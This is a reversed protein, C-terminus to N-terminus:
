QIKSPTCAFFRCAVINNTSKALAKSEMCLSFISCISSAYLKGLSVMAAPKKEMRKTTDMYHIWVAIDICGSSPFFSCKIKDTLNSKCVISVRDITTWTKALQTNQNYVANCHQLLINDFERTKWVEPPIETTHKVCDM